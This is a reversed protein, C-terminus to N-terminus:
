INQLFLNETFIKKNICRIGSYFAFTTTNLNEQYDGSVPCFTCIEVWIQRRKKSLFVFWTKIAVVHQVVLFSHLRRDAVIHESPKAIFDIKM